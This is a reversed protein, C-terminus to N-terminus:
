TGEGNWVTLPTTLLGLQAVEAETLVHIGDAPAAQLAFGYLTDAGLMQTLYSRLAMEEEPRWRTLGIQAGRVMRREVGAAFVLVAAGFVDSDSQLATSLGRARIVRGLAMSAQADRPAPIVQLVVQTIQPEQALLREFAAVSRVTIRGRLLVRDNVM